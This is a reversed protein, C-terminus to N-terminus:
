ALLQGGVIEEGHELGSRDVLVLVQQAGRGGARQDGLVQDVHGMLNARVRDGVSARAAPDAQGPASPVWYCGDETFLDRWERFRRADLLRAEHILFLEFPERDLGAVTVPEM